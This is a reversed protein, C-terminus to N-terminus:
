PIGQGYGLTRVTPFRETLEGLHLGVQSGVTTQSREGASHRAALLAEFLKSMKLFVLQDMGSLLRMPAALAIFTEGGVGVQLSVHSKVLSLSREGTGLAAPTEGLRPMQSLVLHEVSVLSREGTLVTRPGVDGERSQCIM